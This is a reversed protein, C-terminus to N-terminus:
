INALSLNPEDLTIKLNVKECFLNVGTPLETFFRRVYQQEGLEWGVWYNETYQLTLRHFVIRKSGRIPDWLIATQLFFIMLIFQFQKCLLFFAYAHM